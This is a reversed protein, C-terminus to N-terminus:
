CTPTFDNSLCASAVIDCLYLSTQMFLIAPLCLCAEPVLKTVPPPAATQLASLCLIFLLSVSLVNFYAQGFKNGNLLLM